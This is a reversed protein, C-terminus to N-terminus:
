LAKTLSKALTVKILVSGSTSFLRERGTIKGSENGLYAEHDVSISESSFILAAAKWMHPNPYNKWDNNTGIGVGDYFSSSYM